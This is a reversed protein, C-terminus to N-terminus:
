DIFEIVTGTAICTTKHYFILYTQHKYCVSTNILAQSGKLKAKLYMENVASQTMSEESLGGIGLIYNQSCEASVTRVIRYNKKALVVQTQIANQNTSAQRSIGCSTCLLLLCMVSAFFLKKM